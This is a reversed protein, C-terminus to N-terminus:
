SLPPARSQPACLSRGTARCVQRTSVYRHKQIDNTLYLASGLLLPQHGASGLQCDGLVASAGGPLSTNKSPDDSADGANAAGQHQGHHHHHKSPNGDSELFALPMNDPCLMVFQGEALSGPMTGLPFISQVVLALLLAPLWVQRKVKSPHSQTSM